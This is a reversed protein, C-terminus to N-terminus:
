LRQPLRRHLNSSGLRCRKQRIWGHSPCVSPRVSLRVSNRHSLRAIATGATARLFHFMCEKHIIDLQRATKSVILRWWHLSPRDHQVSTWCSRGESCQDLSITESSNSEDILTFRTHKIKTRWGACPTQNHNYNLQVSTQGSQAGFINGSSVESEINHTVSAM